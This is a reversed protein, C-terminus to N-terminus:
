VSFSVFSGVADLHKFFPHSVLTEVVANALVVDSQAAGAQRPWCLGFRMRLSCQTHQKQLTHSWSM